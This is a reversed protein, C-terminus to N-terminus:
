YFTPPAFILIGKMASPWKGLNLVFIVPGALFDWFFNKDDTNEIRKQGFSCSSSTVNGCYGGFRMALPATAWFGRRVFKESCHLNLCPGGCFSVGLGTRLVPRTPSSTAESQSRLQTARM